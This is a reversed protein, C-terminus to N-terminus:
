CILVPWGGQLGLSHDIVGSSSPKLEPVRLDMDETKDFTLDEQKTLVKGKHGASWSVTAPGDTTIRVHFKILVPQSCDVEDDPREGGLRVIAILAIAAAIGLAAVAKVTMRRRPAREAGSANDSPPRAPPPGESPTSRPREVSTSPATVSPATVIGGLKRMSFAKSEEFPRDEDALFRRYAQLSQELAEKFDDEHVERIGGARCVLGYLLELPRGHEDTVLGDAQSSESTTGGDVDRSTLRHTKSLATVIGAPTDVTVMQSRAAGSVSETLLGPLGSRALFDPVLIARYGKYRGRAVLFAWADTGNM